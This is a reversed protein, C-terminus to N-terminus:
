ALLSEASDGKTYQSNPNLQGSVSVRAKSPHVVRLMLQLAVYVFYPAPCTGLEVLM